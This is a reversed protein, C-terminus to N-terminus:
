TKVYNGWLLILLAMSLDLSAMVVYCDNDAARAIMSQLLTGVTATSKNKKIGHQQKGTLDLKNTTELYHVQKLIM